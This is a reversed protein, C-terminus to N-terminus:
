TGLTHRLMRRSPSYSAASFTRLDFWARAPTLISKMSLTKFGGEEMRLYLLLLAMTKKLHSGKSVPM